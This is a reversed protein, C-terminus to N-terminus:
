GNRSVGQAGRGSGDKGRVMVLTPFYARSERAPELDSCSPESCRVLRSRNSGLKIKPITPSALRALGLREPERAVGVISVKDIRLIM